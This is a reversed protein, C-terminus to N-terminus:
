IKDLSVTKIKSLSLISLIRAQKWKESDTAYIDFELPLWWDSIKRLLKATTNTNTFYLWTKWICFTGVGTLNMSFYFYFISHTMRIMEIFYFCWSYFSKLNFMSYLSNKPLSFHLNLGMLRLKIKKLHSSGFHRWMNCHHCFTSHFRYM